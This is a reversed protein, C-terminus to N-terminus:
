TMGRKDNGNDQMATTSPVDNDDDDEDTDVNVTRRDADFDDFLNHRVHYYGLESGDQNSANLQIMSLSNVDIPLELRFSGDDATQVEMPQIVQTTSIWNSAKVNATAVAKGGADVVVGSIVSVDAKAAVPLLLLMATFLTRSFM